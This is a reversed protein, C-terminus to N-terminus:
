DQDGIEIIKEIPTKLINSIVIATDLLARSKNNAIKNISSVCMHSEFALWHQSKGMRDLIKVVGRGFSKSFKKPPVHGSAKKERQLTMEMKRTCAKCIGKSGKWGRLISFSTGDDRNWGHRCLPEMDKEADYLHALLAREGKLRDVGSVFRCGISHGKLSLKRKEEKDSM